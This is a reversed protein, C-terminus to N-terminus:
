GRSSQPDDSWRQSGSARQRRIVVKQLSAILGEALRARSRAPLKLAKYEIKNLPNGM